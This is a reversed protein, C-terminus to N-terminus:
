EDGVGGIVPGSVKDCVFIIKQTRSSSTKGFPYCTYLVLQEKDSIIDYDSGKVTNIETVIYEFAGYQTNIKVKMDQKMNELCGFFTTDHGGVLITGGQGPFYSSVSHGAGKLLINENDGYYLPVNMGIEDCVIYGYQGDVVPSVWEENKIQGESITNLEINTDMDDYTGGQIVAYSFDAFMMDTYKSGALLFLAVSILAALVTVIIGRVIVIKRHRQNDSSFINFRM